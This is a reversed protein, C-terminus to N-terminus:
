KQSKIVEIVFIKLAELPLMIHVGALLFLMTILGEFSLFGHSVWGLSDAVVLGITSFITFTFPLLFMYLRKYDIFISVVLLQVIIAIFSIFVYKEAFVGGIIPCVSSLIVTKIIEKIDTSIENRSEYYTCAADSIVCGVLMAATFGCIVFSDDFDILTNYSVVILVFMILDTFIVSRMFSAPSDIRRRFYAYVGTGLQLPGFYTFLYLWTSSDFSGLTIGFVLSMLLTFATSAAGFVISNKKM